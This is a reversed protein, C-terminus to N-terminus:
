EYILDLGDPWETENLPYGKYEGLERNVLRAEYVIGGEKYWAYRPFGGERIGGIAGREIATRL